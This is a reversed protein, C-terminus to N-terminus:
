YNRRIKDVIIADYLRINKIKSRELKDSITQQKAGYLYELQKGLGQYYTYIKGEEIIVPKNDFDKYNSIINDIYKSSMNHINWLKSERKYIIIELIAKKVYNINMGSGAFPYLLEVILDMERQPKSLKSKIVANQELIWYVSDTPDYGGLRFLLNSDKADALVNQAYVFGDGVTKNSDLDDSTILVSGYGIGFRVNEPYFLKNLLRGYLFATAETKFVGQISDGSSVNMTTLMSTEFAPNLEEKCKNLLKAVEIQREELGKTSKVIDAVFCYGNM